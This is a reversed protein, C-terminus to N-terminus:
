PSRLDVLVKRVCHPIDLPNLLIRLCSGDADVVQVVVELWLRVM